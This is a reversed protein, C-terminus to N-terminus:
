DTKIHCNICILPIKHKKAYEKKLKDHIKLKEYNEIGGFFEVPEFHQGGQLEVLLLQNDVYVAFDYLLLGGGTGFLDGFSYQYYYKYSNSDLFNKVLLESLSGTQCGCSKRKGNRLDRGKVVIENGCVCQCLWRNIKYGKETYEFPARELVTLVGFKKGVMDKSKVKLKSRYCGCNHNGDSKLSNGRVTVYNGCECRCLWKYDKEGNPYEYYGNEKIVTLKDFTKGTLDKKRNYIGCKGCSKVHGNKLKAAVVEKHNGCDCVCEYKPFKNGGSSVHDSVRRLVTLHNFKKGIISSNDRYVGCEGCSKVGNRLSSALIIKTRGCSCICKYQVLKNGGSTVHYEARELVKLNGIQKGILEYGRKM